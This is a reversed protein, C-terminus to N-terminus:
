PRGATHSRRVRRRLEEAVPDPRFAGLLTRPSNPIFRLRRGFPTDRRLELVIRRPNTWRVCEVALVDALAIRGDEAGKRVFLAEEDLQVEDALGHLLWLNVGLGAVVAIALVVWVPWPAEIKLRGAHQLLLGAGVLGAGFLGLLPTAWKYYRTMASSIRRM